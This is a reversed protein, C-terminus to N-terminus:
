FEPPIWWAGGAASHWPPLAPITDAVGAGGPLTEAAGIEAIAANEAAAAAAAAEAAAADAAAAEAAAAAAAAGVGVGIGYAVILGAGIVLAAGVVMAAIAMDADSPASYCCFPDLCIAYVRVSAGILTLLLLVRTAAHMLRGSILPSVSDPPNGVGEPVYPLLVVVLPLASGICALIVRFDGPVTNARLTWGPLQLLFWALYYGAAAAVAIRGVIPVHNLLATWRRWLRWAPLVCNRLLCIGAVVAIVLAALRWSGIMGALLLTYVLATLLSRLWLPMNRTWAPNQDSDRFHERLKKLSENRSSKGRARHVLAARVVIGIAAAAPLWPNLMSSYDSVSIPPVRKAWAWIVRLTTPAILIWTYVLVGQLLAAAAVRLVIWFASHTWSRRISARLLAFGFITPMAALGFFIAYSYLQPVRLRFFDALPMWPDPTLVPGAILYDGLAFGVVTMLGLNASLAGLFVTVFLLPLMQMFTVATISTSLRTSDIVVPSWHTAGEFFGFLLALAPAALSARPWATLYFGDSWVGSIMRSYRHLKGPFVTWWTEITAAYAAGATLRAGAETSHISATM